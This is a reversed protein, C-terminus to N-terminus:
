NGSLRRSFVNIDEQNVIGDFNLDFKKITETSVVNRSNAAERLAALDLSNVRQDNNFDYNVSAITDDFSITSIPEKKYNLLDLNTGLAIPPLSISEESIKIKVDSKSRGKVVLVEASTGPEIIFLESLEKNLVTKLPLIFNGSTSSFTALPEAGAINLFVLSEDIPNLNTNLVTGRLPKPFSFTSESDEVIPIDATKFRGIEFYADENNLIRFKYETGNKLTNITVFHVLRPVANSRDRNDAAMQNFSDDTSYLVKGITPETTQWVITASNNFVNVVQLDSIQIQSNVKVQPRLFFYYVIGSGILMILIAIGLLTPIRM